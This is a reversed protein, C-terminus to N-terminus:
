KKKETEKKENNNNIEKMKEWISNKCAPTLCTQYKMRGTKFELIPTKCDMCVKDTPTLYGKQPLSYTQTCSPYGRCGVFRKKFKSTRVVLDKGCRPCVGIPKNKDKYIADKLDKQFQEKNKRFDDIMNKLEKRATIVVEKVERKGEAVQGMEEELTRTFDPLTIRQASKNLSQILEIGLSSVELTKGQAEVYARRKLTEIHEQRTSKTGIGEKEMLKLLTGESYRAPPKTEGETMKLDLLKPKDGKSLPPLEIIKIQTFPYIKLFGLKDIITGRAVFPEGSIDLDVITRTTEAKPSLTALYRRVIFDYVKQLAGALKKPVETTPMVPPHDGLNKDGNNVRFGSKLLRKAYEGLEGKSLAELLKNHVGEPYVNTDTRPYTIHGALYLSEAMQMGKSATINFQTNLDKLLATTNLPIPPNMSVKSSEVSIVVPQGKKLRKEADEKKFFRGNKHSAEFQKSDKELLAILEWFKESQFKKIELEREVLFRLTPTQCRGVSIPERRRVGMTIERTLVAGFLLDVIMRADISKSLNPNTERLKDFAERLEEKTLASYWARKGKMHLIELAEFGINEGEPDADCAHIVIEPKFKKILNVINAQAVIKDPDVDILDRPDIKTWSNYEESFDYTMIHGRLPMVVVPRGKWDIEYYVHSGAKVEKPTKDALADAIKKAAQVKEAIILIM